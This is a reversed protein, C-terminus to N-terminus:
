LIPSIATLANFETESRMSFPSNAAIIPGEPEPLDVKMFMRPHRSLGVLPLYKSSPASIEPSLFSSRDVILFLFM